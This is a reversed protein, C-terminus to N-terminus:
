RQSRHRGRRAVPVAIRRHKTLEQALAFDSGHVLGAWMGDGGFAIRYGVPFAAAVLTGPAGAFLGTTAVLSARLDFIVRPQVQVTLIMSTLAGSGM